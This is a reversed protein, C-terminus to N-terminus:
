FDFLNDETAGLILRITDTQSKEDVVLTVSTQSEVIYLPESVYITDGQRSLEYRKSNYIIYPLTMDTIGKLNYSIVPNAASLEKTLLTATWNLAEKQSSIIIVPVLVEEPTCGGHISQGYPVKGCLSNHRLVCMTKKDECIVYENSSVCNGSNRIAIRGHHDSEVGAMNLGDCFQSLATLGHDSVIAIKKGNYEATIDHIATKIIEIEEIIYAPYNNTVKHAHSDLDGKKKLEGKSIELLSQKNISTTTPYQARAIYVENLYIGESVKHDLLYKIYPIWDIGLGDIWYFVEIDTRSNLVTKTTKFSQYWSNFSVESANKENIICAIQSNYKNEIKSKKYEDFYDIVWQQSSGITKGLYYYLEPFFPLVNDKVIFGESFWIIALTKEINTLQSFYRIALPFGVSHALNELKTRLTHQVDESLKINRHAAEQLCVEREKLHNEPNDIDFITLAISTFFESNTFNKIEKAAKCIYGQQCFKSDYYIILLWKEFDDKCVFWTKLFVKYDALDDIHFYSNFFKEFNFNSIDIETALRQWHIEDAANYSIAGFDLLLGKGLFEFVNNCVCFSFANDPQAFVANAFLSKSTSIIQQKANKDRWVKLWEQMNQVVTYKESLKEVGYVTGDTMILNYNLQRDQSKFYWIFIQSDNCFKSMKGELGVIPIYVRQSNEFGQTSTEIAKITKVLADFECLKENDYFRALESFPAIVSDQTSNETVYNIIKNALSSHTIISDSFNVDLWNDVSEVNCHMEEQMKSVFEFSDRFNDFLVFRIAYRNLYTSYSDKTYKDIKVENLLDEFNNYEKYM